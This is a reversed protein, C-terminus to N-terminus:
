PVLLLGGSEGGVLSDVLGCSAGWRKTLASAGTLVETFEQVWGRGSLLNDEWISLSRFSPDSTHDVWRSFCIANEVWNWPSSFFPFFPCRRWKWELEQNERSKVMEGLLIGRPIEKRNSSWGSTNSIHTEEAIQFYLMAIFVKKLWFPMFCLLRLVCRALPHM